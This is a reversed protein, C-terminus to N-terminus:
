FGVTLSIQTIQYAEDPKVTLGLALCQSVYGLQKPFVTKKAGPVM